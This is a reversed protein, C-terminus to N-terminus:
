RTATVRIGTVKGALGGGHHKTYSGGSSDLDDVIITEGATRATAEGWPKSSNFDPSDFFEVRIGADQAILEFSSVEDSPITPVANDTITWRNGGRRKDEFCTLRFRRGASSVSITCKGGLVEASNETNELARRSENSQTM